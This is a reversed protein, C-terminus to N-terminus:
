GWIEASAWEYKPPSNADSSIMVSYYALVQHLFFYWVSIYIEKLGKCFPLLACKFKQERGYLLLNQFKFTLLNSEPKLLRLATDPLNEYRGCFSAQSEEPNANWWCARMLLPCRSESTTVHTLDTNTHTKRPDHGGSRYSSVSYTLQGPLEWASPWAIKETQIRKPLSRADTNIKGRWCLTTKWWLCLGAHPQRGNEGGSPQARFM